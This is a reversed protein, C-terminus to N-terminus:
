SFYNFAKLEEDKRSTILYGEEITQRWVEGEGECASFSFAKCAATLAFWQSQTQHVSFVSGCPVM